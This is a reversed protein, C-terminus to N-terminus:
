PYKAIVPDHPLRQHNPVDLDPPAAARRHLCTMTARRFLPRHQSLVPPLLPRVSSGPNNRGPSPEPLVREAPHAGPFVTPYTRARTRGRTVRHSSARPNPHCSSSGVVPQPFLNEFVSVLNDLPDPGPSLPARSPRVIDTQSMLISKCFSAATAEAAPYPHFFFHTRRVM